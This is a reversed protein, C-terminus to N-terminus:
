VLTEAKDDRWDEGPVEDPWAQAVPVVGVVGREDVDAAVVDARVAFVDTSSLSSAQNRRGTGCWCRDFDVDLVVYDEDDDDDPV